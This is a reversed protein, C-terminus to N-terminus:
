SNNPQHARKLTPRCQTGWGRESLARGKYMILSGRYWYYEAAARAACASAAGDNPVAMAARVAM